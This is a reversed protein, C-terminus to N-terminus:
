GNKRHVRGGRRMKMGFEGGDFDENLSSGHDIGFRDLLGDVGERLGHGLSKGLHSGAADHLHIPPHAALRCTLARVLPLDLIAGVAAADLSRPIM